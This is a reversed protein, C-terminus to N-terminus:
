SQEHPIPMNMAVLHINSQRVINVIEAVESGYKSNGRNGGNYSAMMKRWNGKHKKDWHDIEMIAHKIAFDTDSILKACIKNRNFSTNDIDERKLVNAVKNHFPGCSPDNLNIPISAGMSERWAIATLTLQYGTGATRNYIDVLSNRQEETLKDMGYKKANSGTFALTVTPIDNSNAAIRQADVIEQELQEITNAAQELDKSTSYANIAMASTSVVCMAIIAKLATTTKHKM